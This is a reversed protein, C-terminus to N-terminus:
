RVDVDGSENEQIVLRKKQLTGLFAELPNAADLDVWRLCTVLPCESDVFKRITVVRTYMYYMISYEIAITCAFLELLLSCRICIM